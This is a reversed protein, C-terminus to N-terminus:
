IMIEECFESISHILLLHIEQIRVVKKSPVSIFKWNNEIEHSYNLGTLLYSKCGLLVAKRLALIVNPSSGSTSFAVVIDQRSVLASVQREFIKEFGYDNGIATVSSNSDSLCLAPWPEHERSCKSILETAFHSAEAASGGNGFTILKGGSNITAVLDLCLENVKQFFVPDNCAKITDLLNELDSKIKVNRM